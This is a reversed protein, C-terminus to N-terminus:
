NWLSVRGVFLIQILRRFQLKKDIGFKIESEGPDAILFLIPAYSGMTM